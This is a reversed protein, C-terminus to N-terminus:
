QGVPPPPPPTVDGGQASGILGQKVLFGVFAATVSGALIVTRPASFRKERSLGVWATNVRVQEGSWPTAGGRTSITREVRLTYVSDTLSVLWGEVRAVEPGVHDALQVRGLDTLDLAMRTGPAPASAISTYTYCGTLAMLWLVALFSGRLAL